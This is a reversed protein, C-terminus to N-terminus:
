APRTKHHAAYWAEGTLLRGKSRADQMNDAYTGVFLHSPRVCTRVDCHHCVILGPPVPGYTLEWAVHHAGPMPEDKSGLRIRGYGAGKAGTWLWCEGSKDVKPWFREALPRRSYPRCWRCTLSKAIIPRGCECYRQTM